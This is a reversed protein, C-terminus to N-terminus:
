RSKRTTSTKGTRKRPKKREAAQMLLLTMADRYQTADLKVFEKWGFVEQFLVYGMTMGQFMRFFIYPDVSGKDIRRSILNTIPTWFHDHLKRVFIERDSEPLVMMSNLMIMLIGKLRGKEFAKLIGDFGTEILEQLSEHEPPHDGAIKAIQGADQMLFEAFLVSLIEPKNKFHHFILGESVGAKKAIERTSTGQYGKRAFLDFSALLIAQRSEAGSSPNTKKGTNKQM